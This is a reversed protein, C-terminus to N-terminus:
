VHVEVNVDQESAKPNPIRAMVQNFDDAVEKWFDEGRFKLPDTHGKDLLERMARRLRMIPGVFRNSFRITDLVFAPLTALMLIGLLSFESVTSSIREMFPIDPNGLLSHLMVFCVATIAFFSIWHMLIRKVLAGQVGSDVFNTIREFKKM